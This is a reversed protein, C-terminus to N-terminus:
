AAQHHVVRSSTAAPPINPSIIKGILNDDPFDIMLTGLRDPYSAGGLYDSVRPNIRDAVANPYAGSSTGSVFNIYWTDSLDSKARDLLTSIANWKPDISFVLITPVQYQDQVEFM